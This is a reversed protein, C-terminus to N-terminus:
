SKFMGFLCYRPMKNGVIGAVVMGSHSGLRIRVHTDESGEFEPRPDPIYTVCDRMDLAMDMIKEAHNKVRDPAGSVGVFSDKVTEVKYIGNRDSLQDFIGFINNLMEVIKMGDCKGCIDLFAPIDSFVITVQEFVECTEVPNLGAKVKEAVSKPIMQAILEDSRKMEEDLKKMSHEMEKTKAM